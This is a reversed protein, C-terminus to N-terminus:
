YNAEAAPLDILIFQADREARIHIVHEDTARVQDGPGMETGNVFLSGEKLYLFTNRIPFTKFEIEKEARLNSWYITSNSNIYVVDELVKQGSVLPILENKSDLFDIDKQEYSPSLGKMNPIFWLQYFRLPKDTRNYESHALGTGATMRQVEGAKITTKNGMTDEHTIEGELVISVIEMEHHPHQPFGANPAVTDDNFVRLPGFHMNKPDYYEAFSFLHFSSLWAVPQAHYRETAPIYTLM